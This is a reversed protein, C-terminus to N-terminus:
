LIGTSHDSPTTTTVMAIVTTSLRIRGACGGDTDYAQLTDGTMRRRHYRSSANRDAPDRRKQVGTKTGFPANAWVPM